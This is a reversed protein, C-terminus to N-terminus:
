FLTLIPRFHLGFLRPLFQDFFPDFILGFILGFIILIRPNEIQSPKSRLVPSFLPPMKPPLRQRIRGLCLSPTASYRTKPSFIVSFPSFSRPFYLAGPKYHSFVPAGPKLPNTPAGPATPLLPQFHLTTPTRFRLFRVFKLLGTKKPGGRKKNGAKLARLIFPPLLYERTTFFTVSIEHNKCPPDDSMLFPDFRM